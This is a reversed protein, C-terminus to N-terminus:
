IIDECFNLLEVVKDIDNEKYMCTHRFIWNQRFIHNEVENSTVHCASATM